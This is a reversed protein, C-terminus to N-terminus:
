AWEPNFDQHDQWVAAFARLADDSATELLLREATGRRLERDPFHHRVHDILPDGTDPGPDGWVAVAQAVLDEEAIRELIFEVITM